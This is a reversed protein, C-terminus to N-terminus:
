FSSNLSVPGGFLLSSPWSFLTLPLKRASFEEEEYECVAKASIGANRREDAISTLLLFAAEEDDDAVAGLIGNDVTLGGRCM